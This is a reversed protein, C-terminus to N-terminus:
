GLMEDMKSEMKSMYKSTEQHILLVDAVDQSMVAVDAQTDQVM